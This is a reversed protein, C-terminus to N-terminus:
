CIYATIKAEFRNNLVNINEFNVDMETFILRRNQFIFFDNKLIEEYQQKTLMATIQVKRGKITNFFTQYNAVYVDEATYTLSYHPWYYRSNVVVQHNINWNKRKILSFHQADVDANDIQQFTGTRATEPVPWLHDINVLRGNNADVRVCMYSRFSYPLFACPIEIKKTKNKPYFHEDHLWGKFYEQSETTTITYNNPQNNSNVSFKYGKKYEYLKYFNYTLQYGVGIKDPVYNPKKAFANQEAVQIYNSNKSVNQFIEDSSQDKFSLYYDSFNDDDFELSTSVNTIETINTNTATDNFKVFTLIQNAFDVKISSCTLKKVITILSSITYDKPLHNLTIIDPSYIDAVAFADGTFGSNSGFYKDLAVNNFIHSDVFKDNLIERDIKFGTENEVFDFCENILWKLGFFPVLCFQRTCGDWYSNYQMMFVRTPNSSDFQDTRYGKVQNITGLWKDDGIFNEAAVPLFAFPMNQFYTLWYARFAIVLQQSENFVRFDSATFQDTPLEMEGPSYPIINGAHTNSTLYHKINSNKKTIVLLQQVSSEANYIFTFGGNNAWAPADYFLWNRFHECVLNLNQSGYLTYEHSATENTELNLLALRFHVNSANQYVGRWNGYVAYATYDFITENTGVTANHSLLNYNEFPVESIKKVLSKHLSSKGILLYCDYGSTFKNIGLKGKYQFNGNLFVAIELEEFLDSKAVSKYNKFLLNNNETDPINFSIVGDGSTYDDLDFYNNKHNFSLSAKDDLDFYKNTSLELIAIM